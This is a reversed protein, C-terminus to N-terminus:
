SALPAHLLQCQLYSDKFYLLFHFSFNHFEQEKLFLMSPINHMLQLSIKFFLLDKEESIQERVESRENLAFLILTHSKLFNTCTFCIASLYCCYCVKCSTSCVLSWNNHEFIYKPGSQRHRNRFIAAQQKRRIM